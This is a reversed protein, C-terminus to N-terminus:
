GGTVLVLATMALHATAHAIMAAELGRRWFLWGFAVGGLANLLLTRAVVAPTLATVADVAPLHLAGFALATAVIAAWMVARGPGAAPSGAVRWALYALFSMLGWRVMVEETVGGYLVGAVTVLVGRDGRLALEAGEPGLLPLTLGDLLVLAVGVAAGLGLALRWGHAVERWSLPAGAVREAIRSRLGLRHACLAGALTGLALLILPNILALAALAPLPLDPADPVGALLDAVLDMVTPIAAVVGILGMLFLALSGRLGAPRRPANPADDNTM